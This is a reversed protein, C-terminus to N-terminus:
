AAAGRGLRTTVDSPNPPASGGTASAHLRDDIGITKWAARTAPGGHDNAPNDV